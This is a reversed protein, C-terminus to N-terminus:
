MEFTIGKEGVGMRKGEGRAEMFISKTEFKLDIIIRIFYHNHSHTSELIRLVMFKFTTECSFYDITYEKCYSVNKLCPVFCIATRERKTPRLITPAIIISLDQEGISEQDKLFSAM